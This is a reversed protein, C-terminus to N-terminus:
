DEVAEAVDADALLSIFDGLPSLLRLSEDDAVMPSVSLLDIFRGLPMSLLSSGTDPVGNLEEDDSAIGIARGTATDGAAVLMGVGSEVDDARNAVADGAADDGVIDGAGEGRRGDDNM